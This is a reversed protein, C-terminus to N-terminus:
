APKYNEIEKRVKAVEDENLVLRITDTSHKDAIFLTLGNNAMRWNQLAGTTQIVKENIRITIQM